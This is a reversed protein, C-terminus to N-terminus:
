KKASFEKRMWDDLLRKEYVRPDNRDFNINTMFSLDSLRRTGEKVVAGNAALLQFNLEIRPSYIEKVIRVDQMRPGRGPEIEGALDIDTIKVVLKQGEPVYISAKREMHEKLTELIADRGWDSGRYGDGADTFKDPEVFAVDVRSAIPAKSKAPAAHLGVVACAAIVSLLPIRTSKM